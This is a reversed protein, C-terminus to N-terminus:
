RTLLAIREVEPLHEKVISQMEVVVTAPKLKRDELVPITGQCRAVGSSVYPM